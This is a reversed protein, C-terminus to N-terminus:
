GWQEGRLKAIRREEARSTIVSHGTKPDVPCGPLGKPKSYAVYPKFDKCAQGCSIIRKCMVGDINVLEGLDPAESMPYYKEHVEGDSDIFEYVPM